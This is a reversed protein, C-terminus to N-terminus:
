IKENINELCTEFIHKLEEKSKFTKDENLCNNFPICFSNKYKWKKFRKKTRSSKRLDKKAELM